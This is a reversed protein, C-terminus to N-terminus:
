WDVKVVDPLKNLPCNILRKPVILVSELALYDIDGNQIAIIEERLRDRFALLKTISGKGWTPIAVLQEYEAHLIAQLMEGMDETKLYRGFKELAKTHKTEVGA